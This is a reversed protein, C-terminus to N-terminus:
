WAVDSFGGAIQQPEDGDRSIYVRDRFDLLLLNRGIPDPHVQWWSGRLVTELTEGTDPDVSVVRVPKDEQREEGRVVGGTQPHFGYLGFTKTERPTPVSPAHILDAPPRAPDIVRYEYLRGVDMPTPVLEVVLRGDPLWVTEGVTLETEGVDVRIEGETRLDRVVLANGCGIENCGGQYALRDGDPSVEPDSGMGLDEPEGGELPISALRRDEEGSPRSHITSFYVTSGDPTLALGHLDLGGEPDTGIVSRNAIVRLVEGTETSARVLEGNKVGVFSSPM